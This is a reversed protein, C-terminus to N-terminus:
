FLVWGKEKEDAQTKKGLLMSVKKKVKETKNQKKFRVWGKEKEDTKNEKGLLASVM